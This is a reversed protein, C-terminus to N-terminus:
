FDIIAHSVLTGSSGSHADEFDDKIQYFPFCVCRGLSKEEYRKECVFQIILRAKGTLATQRKQDGRADRRGM